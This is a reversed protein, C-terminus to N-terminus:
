DFLSRQQLYRRWVLIALVVGAAGLAAEAYPLIPFGSSEVTLSVSKVRGNVISVDQSDSVEQFSATVTYNGPPLVAAVGGAKSPLGSTGSASSVTFTANSLPSGGRSVDARLLGAPFIVSGRWYPQPITVNQVESAVDGFDLRVTIDTPYKGTIVYLSGASFSWNQLENGSASVGIGNLTANPLPLSLGIASGISPLSVRSYGEVGGFGYMMLISRPWRSTPESLDSTTQFAQTVVVTLSSCSSSSVWGSERTLLYESEIVSLGSQTRLYTRLTYRGYRMPLAENFTSKISQNGPTLVSDTRAVLLDTTIIGQSTQYSYPAYLELWTAFPSAVQSVSFDAIGGALSLNMKGGLNTPLSITVGSSPSEGLACAQIDDAGTAPLSFNQVLLSGDLSSSLLNPEVAEGQSRVLFTSATSGAPSVVTIQWIGLPPSNAFQYLEVLRQPDLFTPPTASTGNPFSLSAEVSTSYNSFIWMEDGQSYIPAGLSLPLLYDPSFGMSLSPTTRAAVTSTPLLFASLLMLSGLALTRTRV